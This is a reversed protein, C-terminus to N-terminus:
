SVRSLFGRVRRRSNERDDREVFFDFCEREDSSRAGVSSGNVFPSMLVSLGSSSWLGTWGDSPGCVLLRRTDLEARELVDASEPSQTEGDVDDGGADPEASELTGELGVNIEGSNLPGFASWGSTDRVDGSDTDSFDGFFTLDLVKFRRM